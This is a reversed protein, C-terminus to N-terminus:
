WLRNLFCLRGTVEPADPNGLAYALADGHITLTGRAGLTGGVVTLEEETTGPPLAFFIHDRTFAQALTKNALTQITMVTAATAGQPTLSNPLLVAVNNYTLGSNFTGQVPLSLTTNPVSLTAQFRGSLCTPIPFPDLGIFRADPFNQRVGAMGTITCNFDPAAQTLTGQFDICRGSHALPSLALSALAVIPAVHKNM